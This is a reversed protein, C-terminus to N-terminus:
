MMFNLNKGAVFREDIDCLRHLLRAQGDAGRRWIDNRAYSYTMEEYVRRNRVVFCNSFVRYEGPKESEYVEINNIFHRVRERPDATWQMGSEAQQVRMELYFYNENLSFVGEKGGYRHDKRYRLQRNVAQYVIDKDIMTELWERLREESILRAERYITQEIEHYVDHPVPKLAEM